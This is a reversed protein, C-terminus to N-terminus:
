SNATRSSRARPSTADSAPQATTQGFLGEIVARRSAAEREIEALAATAREAFDPESRKAQVYLEVARRIADTLSLDDLQAVLAFQTHLDDPLRIGLAKVSARPNSVVRGGRHKRGAMGGDPIVISLRM